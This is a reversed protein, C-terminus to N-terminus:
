ECYKKQIAYVIFCYAFFTLTTTVTVTVGATMVNQFLYLPDFLTDVSLIVFASGNLKNWNVRRGM